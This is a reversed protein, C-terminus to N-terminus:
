IKGGELFKDSSNKNYWLRSYTVLQGHFALTYLIRVINDNYNEWWCQPRVVRNEHIHPPVLEATERTSISGKHCAPSLPPCSLEQRQECPIDLTKLFSIGRSGDSYCRVIKLSEYLKEVHKSLSKERYSNVNLTSKWQRTIKVHPRLTFHVHTFLVYAIYPFDRM